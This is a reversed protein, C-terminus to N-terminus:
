GDARDFRHFADAVPTLGARAVGALCLERLARADTMAPAGAACGTLDAMLHLGDMSAIIPM